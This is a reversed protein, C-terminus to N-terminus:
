SLYRLWSIYAWPHDVKTPSRLVLTSAAGLPATSKTSTIIGSRTALFPTLIERATFRLNGPAPWEAWPSDSGLVLGFPTTSPHCTLIGAGSKEAIPDCIQSPRGVSPFTPNLRRPPDLFIRVLLVEPTIVLGSRASTVPAVRM